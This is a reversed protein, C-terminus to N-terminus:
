ERMKEKLWEKLAKRDKNEKEAELLREYDPAELRAVTSKVEKVTGRVIKEYDIKKVAGIKGKKIAYALGATLCGFIAIALVTAWTPLPPLSPPSPPPGTVYFGPNAEYGTVVEMGGPSTITTRGSISVHLRYEGPQANESARVTITVLRALAYQNDSFKVWSDFNDPYPQQPEEPLFDRSELFFNAQFNEWEYGTWVQRNELPPTVEFEWWDSPTDEGASTTVSIEDAPILIYVNDSTNYLNIFINESGGQPVMANQGPGSYYVIGFSSALPTVSIWTCTFLLFVALPRVRSPATKAM